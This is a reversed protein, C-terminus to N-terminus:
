EIPQQRDLEDFFQGMPVTEQGGAVMDRLTVADKELEEDGVIVVYHVGLANAQRLQGRLSRSGSSLIAGVGLERLRYAIKLAGERAGEGTSAVLYRPAPEDPVGVEQRKLNIVLREMGTAFGIGPTPRGGIQEMLADYRGGGCITSQGGEQAPQIEFVTRTYYDLGRVLRHDVRYPIGMLGLYSLLHSWHGQCDSCLHDVSRPADTGLAQCSAQKCDLLRLPNRELRSRCDACLVAMHGSYYDKLGEVYAPRCQGDGISNVLLSLGSLGLASMLRWALEIVEADVTPDADGLVEVGFQHHERYRGAQPREYRFVPCFYYLRVPQPLNHMGHELYARCVPATGEPRFTISEGGRDQFTYMEKEVIDTGKGVSRIFLGSDEFVPTDLRSFGHRRCVEVATAKIYRWYKQQEPLLDATGRPAKYLM